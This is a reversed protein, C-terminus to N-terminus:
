KRRGVRPLRLSQTVKAFLSEDDDKDCDCDCNGNEDCQCDCELQADQDDTKVPKHEDDDQDARQRTTPAGRALLDASAGRFQTRSAMPTATGSIRATGPMPMRTAQQQVRGFGATRNM